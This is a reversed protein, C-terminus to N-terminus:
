KVNYWLHAYRMFAHFLWEVERNCQFAYNSFDCTIYLATKEFTYGYDYQKFIRLFFNSPLFVTCANLITFPKKQWANESFSCLQVWLQNEAISSQFAHSHTLSHTLWDTSFKSFYFKPSIRKYCKPDRQLCMQAQKHMIMVILPRSHVVGM